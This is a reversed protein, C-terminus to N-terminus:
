FRKRLEKFRHWWGEKKGKSEEGYRYYHYGYYGNKRMDAKTLVCGLIRAEVKDLSRKAAKVAEINTVNQEICIITGDVHSALVSADTVHLLPPSDIFVYDYQNGLQKILDMMKNSALLESAMPPIPGATIVDLNKIGTEQQIVENLPIDRVLHNTLGPQKRIRFLNALKPKRLDADILLVRNGGHAMTIAVNSVTTSKGEVETSSTFLLVKKKQDVGTYEINTRIMRYAEAAPAKPNEHAILAKRM